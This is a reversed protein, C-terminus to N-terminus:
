FVYILILKPQSQKTRVLNIYETRVNALKVSMGNNNIEKKMSQASILLTVTSTQLDQKTNPITIRM